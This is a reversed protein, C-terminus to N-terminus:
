LGEARLAAEIEPQHSEEIEPLVDSHDSVGYKHELVYLIEERWKALTETGHGVEFTQWYSDKTPKDDGSMRVMPRSVKSLEDVIKQYLADGTWLKAWKHVDMSCHFHSTPVIKRALITNNRQAVFVSREHEGPLLGYWAAYRKRETGLYPGLEIRIFYIRKKADSLKVKEVASGGENNENSDHVLTRHLRM